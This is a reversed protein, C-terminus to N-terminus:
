NFNFSIEGCSSVANRGSGIDEPITIQSGTTWPAMPQPWFLKLSNHRHWWSRDRNRALPWKDRTDRLDRRDSIILTIIGLMWIRIIDFGSNFYFKMSAEKRVKGILSRRITRMHTPVKAAKVKQKKNSGIRVWLYTNRNFYRLNVSCSYCVNRWRGAAMHVLMVTM